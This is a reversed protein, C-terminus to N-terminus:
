PVALFWPSTVDATKFYNLLLAANKERGSPLSNHIGDYLFDQCSWSLGDSRPILGNAWDYTAWSLWPAMVPGNAPNYNLAPNGNLQQQMLYQVAFGTEYAFTEPDDPQKLGNAYGAYERTSFFAMKLNPFKNHLNQVISIYESELKSMDGPFTGTPFGDIVMVWAAVVQNATVGAQPLFYNMETNWIPDSPNAYRGATLNPNAGNVLVLHPNLTTDGFAQQKLYGFNEFTISLGLSLLAYSGNPDPNGNADLPQIADALNVGDSDHSAPMINSGNLYLGGEAGLYTGTGLDTIPVLPNQTGNINWSINNCDAQTPAAITMNFQDTIANSASDTATIKFKYTGLTLTSPISGSLVGSSSLTLGTPLNAATWTVGGTGGVSSFTASYAAGQTAGPLTPFNTIALGTAAVSTGTLAVAMPNLVDSTIVVDGTYTGVASPSFIVKLPLSQGASLVTGGKGGSVSFPPETYISLITMSTTGTNTLTVTQTNSQQGVPVNVFSLSPSTLTGIAGTTIGTGSLSIVVPSQGTIGLTFSGTFTQASDPKFNIGYELKQQPPLNWTYGMGLQFESPTLAISSIQLTTTCNNNIIVGAMLPSTTGVAQNAFHISQSSPTITYCPAALSNAACVALSILLFGCRITLDRLLRFYM